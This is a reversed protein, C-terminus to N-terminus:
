FRFRLVVFDHGGRLFGLRAAVWWNFGAAGSTGPRVQYSKNCLECSFPKSLRHTAEHKELLAASSLVKDCSACKHFEKPHVKQIHQRHEDLTAFSLCCRQCDHPQSLDAASSCSPTLVARLPRGLPLLLSPVREVSRWM